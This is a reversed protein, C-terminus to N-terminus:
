LLDEKKADDPTTVFVDFGGYFRMHLYFPEIVIAYEFVRRDGIWKLPLDTPYSWGRRLHYRRRDPM